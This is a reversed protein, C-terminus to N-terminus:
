NLLIPIEDKIEYKKGCKLCLLSNEKDNYELKGKDTPCVLIQLLNPNIEKKNQNDKM